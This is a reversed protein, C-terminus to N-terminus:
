YIHLALTSTDQIDNVLAFVMSHSIIKGRGLGRTTFEQQQGSDQTYKTNRGTLHCTKM